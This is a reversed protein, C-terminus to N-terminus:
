EVVSVVSIVPSMRWIDSGPPTERISREADFDLTITTTVGEVLDFPRNLIVQGSSIEMPVSTVPPVPVVLNTVCAPPDASAEDLAGSATTLRIQTYHGLPLVATGLVADIGM